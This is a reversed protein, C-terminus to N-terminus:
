YVAVTDLLLTAASYAGASGTDFEIGILRVDAPNFEAPYPPAPYQPNSVNGWEFTQWESSTAINQYGSDAYFFTGGTKVYLKLGPPNMPDTSYGSLVSLRASIRHGALDVGAGDTTVSVEFSIKQSPGTFPLELRISGPNGNPDGMSDHAAAAFTGGTAPPPDGADAAAQPAVLTGPDAFAFQWAEADAAAPLDFTILPETAPGSGGSGAGSSGGAGATATSGGSGSSATQTGGASASLTGGAGPPDSSEESCGLGLGAALLALSSMARRAGTISFM